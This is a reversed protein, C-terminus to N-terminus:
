GRHCRIAQHEHSLSWDAPELAKPAVVALSGRYAILPGFCPLAIRVDFRFRGGDDTESASIHPALALPLPVPGCWWRRLMMTHGSAIPVLDFAFALPGFQEVLRGERRSLRSAFCKDAFCRTWIEGAASRSIEVHLPVAAATAPFGILRAILRAVIGTGRDVQAIGRVSTYTETGHLAAIAAPMANAAGWISAPSDGAPAEAPSM